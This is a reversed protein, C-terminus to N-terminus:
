WWRHVVSDAGSRVASIKVFDGSEPSELQMRV